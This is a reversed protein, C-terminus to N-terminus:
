RRNYRQGSGSAFGLSAAQEESFMTSGCFALREQQEDFLWITVSLVELTESVMRVLANCLESARTVSATKETFSSWVKQYDFLPRRFHRSILRKRRIRLRDSLFIVSLGVIAVLVILAALPLNWGAKAQLTVRALVGVIIFYLGVLLVTFSNYIFTHSLYLKVAFVRMRMLSWFILGDALLLAAVNVL